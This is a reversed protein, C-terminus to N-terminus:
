KAESYPVLKWKNNKKTYGCEKGDVVIPKRDKRFHEIAKSRVNYARSM